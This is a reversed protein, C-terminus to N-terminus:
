PSPTGPLPTVLLDDVQAANLPGTSGGAGGTYHAFHQLYSMNFGQGLAFRCHAGKRATFSAHTSRQTGDSHPLVLPLVQTAAGDCAVTLNKVAATIGTNIPGHDNRYGLAVQYRGDASATWTRPWAGGVRATPGECVPPGPLSELGDAGVRTVSFCQLAAQAPLDTSAAIMGHRRGDVYLMRPGDVAVHWHDGVRTVRPAAPTPAAYMPADTRLPIDAVRIAKLQVVADDGHHVVNAAVLLNGDLTAPRRLTIRRDALQLGIDQASGFLMPVLSVPLKPEIRNDATLGFVGEVVMDLYGAVSWLQRPSDVVPGSLAGDDVHVQQTALEFNEMNSGALAAGRVLSRLAHAIRAPDDAVRAARLAYASVFPWIARNHYIPQDAREPWIVPSG